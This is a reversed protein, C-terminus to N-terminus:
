ESVEAQSSRRSDTKSPKHNGRFDKGAEQKGRERHRRIATEPPMEEGTIKKVIELPVQEFYTKAKLMPIEEWWNSGLLWSASRTLEKSIRFM